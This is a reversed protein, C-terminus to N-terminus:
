SVEKRIEGLILVVLIEHDSHEFCGGFMVNGVLKECSAFLLDLPAVPIEKYKILVNQNFAALSIPSLSISHCVSMCMDLTLM